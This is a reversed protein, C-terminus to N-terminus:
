MEDDLINDAIAAWDVAGCHVIPFRRELRSALIEVTDADSLGHATKEWHPLSMSALRYVQGRLNEDNRISAAVIWTERNRWGQYMPKAYCGAVKEANNPCSM